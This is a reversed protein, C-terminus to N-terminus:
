KAPASVLGFGLQDRCDEVLRDFSASGLLRTKLLRVDFRGSGLALKQAWLAAVGAVHPAAMSTGDMSCLGGGPEASVIGVGPAALKVGWNSFPALPFDGM